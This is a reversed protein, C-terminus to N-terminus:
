RNMYLDELHRLLDEPAVDAGKSRNCAPHVLQINARQNGGGYVFPVIHDVEHDGLSLPEGCLVCMGDQDALLDIVVEELWPRRRVDHLSGMEAAAEQVEFALETKSNM